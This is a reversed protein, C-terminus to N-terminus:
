EVDTNRDEILTLLIEQLIKWLFIISKNKGLSSFLLVIYQTTEAM